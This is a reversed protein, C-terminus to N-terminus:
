TLLFVDPKGHYLQAKRRGVPQGEQGRRRHGPGPRVQPGPGPLQGGVHSGRDGRYLFFLM